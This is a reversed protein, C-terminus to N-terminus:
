YLSGAHAQCAAAFEESTRAGDELLDAVGLKAAVYISQLIWYGTMM